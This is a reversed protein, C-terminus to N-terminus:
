ASVEDLTMWEVEKHRAQQESTMYHRSMYESVFADSRRRGIVWLFAVGFFHGFYPVVERHGCGVATIVAHALTKASPRLYTATRPNAKSIFEGIPM